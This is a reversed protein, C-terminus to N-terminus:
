NERLYIAVRDAEEVATPAPAPDAWPATVRFTYKLDAGPAVHIGSVPGQFGSTPAIGGLTAGGGAASRHALFFAGRTLVRAIVIEVFAVAGLDVNGFDEILAGPVGNDNGFLRLDLTAVRTNTVDVGVRIYTTGEEVFIPIYTIENNVLIPTNGPAHFSWGPIVWRVLNPKMKVPYDSQGTPAGYPM